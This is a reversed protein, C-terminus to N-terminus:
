FIQWKKTDFFQEIIRSKDLDNKNSNLTENISKIITRQNKLYYIEDIKKKNYIDVDVKGQKNLLISRLLINKSELYKGIKFNAENTLKFILGDKLKRNELFVNSFQEEAIMLGWNQGNIQTKYIKFEPSIINLRKFQNSIILNDPFSREPFKTISFEKMGNISKGDKLEIKLSWQKNVAWHNSLDGKLRIDSRYKKNKYIISGPVERPKTLVGLKLALNRDEKIKEFNKFNINIVM